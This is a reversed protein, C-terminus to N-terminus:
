LAQIALWAMLGAGVELCQENVDFNPTHLGTGNPNQVGLRYFCAPIEQSYFAFDEGGMRAPLDVVNEAGLYAEMQQRTQSTLQTENKLYPYGKIINFDCSGGMSKCILQAMEKLKDHAQARWTEDFTRLTGLIKVENPIINTAGGESYIKGFTLVTPMLPDAHRSVLQQLQVILQSAMLITDVCQHPRAGHGGKGRVTVHIEDASAMFLGSKIGIKGVELLPEVHQGLIASPSPNKLVGEQILISAGGPLKEEGPQFILKITGQWEARLAQLIQAAGLLCTTHVDHGCAHMIGENKSKYSTENTEQIPLADMDARLALVKQSPNTGKIIGIVGTQAMIQTEIGWSDLKEKVFQCTQHEQFSLEPYQHLHRRYSILHPSNKKALEQVKKKLM